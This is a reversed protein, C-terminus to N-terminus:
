RRASAQARALVDAVLGAEESGPAGLVEFLQLRAVLRDLPAFREAVAEPLAPPRDAVVMAVAASARISECAVFLARTWPGVRAADIRREASQLRFGLDLLAQGTLPDVPRRAALVAEALDVLARCVHADYAEGFTM